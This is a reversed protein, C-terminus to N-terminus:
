AAPTRRRRRGADLLTSTAHHLHPQRRAGLHRRAPDRHRQDRRRSQEDGPDILHANDGAANTQIIRVVTKGSPKATNTAGSVWAVLTQYEPDNQSDWHKGGGHFADGGADRALPHRLFRSALPSGPVIFKSVAEFNKRSAEESFVTQGEAPGMLRLAEAGRGHCDICAINGPRKILFMPEVRTRYFDFDLTPSVSAPAPAQAFVMQPALMAGALLLALRNM